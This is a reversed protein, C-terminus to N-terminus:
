EGVPPTDTGPGYSSYTTDILERIQRLPTSKVFENRTDVAIRGCLDCGAAHTAYSGDANYFCDHLSQHPPTSSKCGCYCPVGNMVEHPLSAAARFSELSSSTAYVFSPFSEAGRSCAALGVSLAVLVLSGLAMALRM